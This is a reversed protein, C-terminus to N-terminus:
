IGCLNIVKVKLVQSIRVNGHLWDIKNILLNSKKPNLWINFNYLIRTVEMKVIIRNTVEVLGSKNLPKKNKIIKNIFFSEFLIFLCFASIWFSKENKIVWVYVWSICCYIDTQRVKLQGNIFHQHTLVLLLEITSSELNRLEDRIPKYHKVYSSLTQLIIFIYIYINKNSTENDHYIVRLYCVFFFVCLFSKRYDLSPILIAYGLLWIVMCSLVKGGKAIEKLFEM